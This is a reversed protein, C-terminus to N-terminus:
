VIPVLFAMIEELVEPTKYVKNHGLGKTILFKINKEAKKQFSTIDAYPCVLDEQDHVWLVPGNFKHIARDAEFHQISLSTKSLVTKIFADKITENFHMMKFYNAFTTTTKTAPAILIFKHQLPNPITEAILSLTLAGLSHGIFHDIPGFQDMVQELAEKYVVVNIYKGDSLGHGPADFCVVRYGMKLLPQIYQEFKFSFSAYGHAILVTQGNNNAPLPLWEFGRIAIADKLLLHLPKAQHFIAPAKRKKYKPYPTCFLDFAKNGAISPSVMSLTKFKTRLYRLYMRESFGITAM